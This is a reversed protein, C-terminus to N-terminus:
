LTSLMNLLSKLFKAKFSFLPIPCHTFLQISPQWLIISVNSFSETSLFFSTSGLLQFIQCLFTRLFPLPPPVHACLFLSRVKKKPTSIIRRNFCIKFFRWNKKIHKFPCLFTYIDPHAMPIRPLEKEWHLRPCWYGLCQPLFLSPKLCCSFYQINVWFTLFCM